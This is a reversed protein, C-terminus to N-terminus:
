LKGIVKSLQSYAANFRSIILSFYNHVLIDISKIKNKYSVIDKAISIIKDLNANIHKKPKLLEIMDNCQEELQRYIEFFHKNSSDIDFQLIDKLKENQESNNLNSLQKQKDCIKEIQYELDCLSKKNLKCLNVLANKELETFTYSLEISNRETKTSDTSTKTKSRNKSAARKMISSYYEAIAELIEDFDDIGEAINLSHAFKMIRSEEYDQLEECYRERFEEDFETGLKSILKSLGNTGSYYKRLVDGKNSEIHREGKKDIFTKFEDDIYAKDNDPLGMKLLDKTLIDLNSKEGDIDKHFAQVYKSFEPEKKAM